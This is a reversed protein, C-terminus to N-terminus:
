PGIEGLGAWLNVQMMMMQCYQDLLKLEMMLKTSTLNNIMMVMLMWYFIMMTTTLYVVQSKTRTMM